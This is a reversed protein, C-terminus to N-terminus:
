AANEEGGCASDITERSIALRQAVQEATFGTLQAIDDYPLREFLRLALLRQDDAGLRAFAQLAHQEVQTDLAGSSGDDWPKGNPRRTGTRAPGHESARAAELERAIGVLWPRLPQGAPAGAIERTARAITEQFLREAEGAHRTLALCARWLALRHTNYIRLLAALDGSQALPLLEADAGADTWPRSHRTDV